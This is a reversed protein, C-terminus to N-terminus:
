WCSDGRNSGFALKATARCGTDPREGRNCVLGASDRRTTHPLVAALCRRRGASVAGDAAHWTACLRGRRRRSSDLSHRPLASCVLPSCPLHHFRRHRPRPKPHRLWPALEPKSQRQVRLTEPSFPAAAVPLCGFPPCGHSLSSHHAHPPVDRLRPLALSCHQRSPLM